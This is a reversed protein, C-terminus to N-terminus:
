GNTFNMIKTAQFTLMVGSRVTTVAQVVASNFGAGVVCDGDLSADGPSLRADLVIFRGSAQARALPERLEALAQLEAAGRPKVLLGFQPDQLVEALLCLYVSVNMQRLYHIDTGYAHDFYCVICNAGSELLCKRQEMVPSSAIGTHSIHGCYM